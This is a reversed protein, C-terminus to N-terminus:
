CQESFGQSDTQQFDSMNSPKTQNNQHIDISVRITKRVVQGMCSQSRGWPSLFKFVRLLEHLLESGFVQFETHPLLITRQGVECQLLYM